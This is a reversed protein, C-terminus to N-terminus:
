KGINNRIENLVETLNDSQLAIIKNLKDINDLEKKNIIASDVQEEISKLNQIASQLKKMQEISLKDSSSKISILSKRLSTYREPLIEWAKQRHLRKIEDMLTIASSFEIVTDTRQLDERLKLSIAQALVAANKSQRVKILTIIFGFITIILGFISALDGLNYKEIIIRISEM